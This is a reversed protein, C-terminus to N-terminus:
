NGSVWPGLGEGKGVIDARDVRVRVVGGGVSSGGEVLEEEVGGTDSHSVEIDAAKGDDGAEDALVDVWGCKGAHVDGKAM